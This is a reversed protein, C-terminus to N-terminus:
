LHSYSIHFYSKLTKDFEFKHKTQPLGEALNTFWCPQVVIGGNYTVALTMRVIKAFVDLASFLTTNMTLFITILFESLLDKILDLM